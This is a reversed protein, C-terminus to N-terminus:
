DFPFSTVAGKSASQVLRAYKAYAGRPYKPKPPIWGKARAALDADVNITRAEVDITITDGDRVFAIPGGHASEPAVHGIVFGYSAGSFRGDTILAVHDALDQGVLAATVGLMERMGPGGAPGEGRIIIVDGKHIGNKKVVAFCEEESEFVRATGEFYLAGHGALKVVCGEPALDGYLIGYGGRSKVPDAFHRVVDQGTKEKAKSIEGFISQGTVTPSDKIRGDDVLRKGILASGGAEHLDFAMYKGGPKLDGIVPTSRSIEDFIDIDFPVGAETAIALLHLIANTSAATASLAIAANRLSASTVIDRPLRQHKVCDVVLEGAAFAADNKSADISPIDNLGMPSLGLFTMAMAMSNATFQGGCAGAGPCAAKEIDKLEAEDIIGAACAGVAEFVDQVSLDRGKHKGPMISGGYVVVGPVNMRALAMAAAPITKDCAVLIIVGDLSHGQVALEISDAIIERSMLSARMGESGMTIGDSIAISNFDVPTGGAARIGARVPVALKDLDMNCPGMNTWTNFVAIMPGAFNDDDMGTARLMARAAARSQGKVIADSRKSSVKM